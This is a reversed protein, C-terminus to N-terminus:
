LLQAFLSLHRPQLSCCMVYLDLAQTMVSVCVFSFCGFMNMWRSHIYCCGQIYCSVPESFFDFQLFLSFCFLFINWVNSLRDTSMLRSLITWHNHCLYLYGMFFLYTNFWHPYLLWIFSVADGRLAFSNMKSALKSPIPHILFCYICWTFELWM